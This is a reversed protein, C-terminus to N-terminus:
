RVICRCIRRSYRLPRRSLWSSRRGRRVCVLLALFPFWWSPVVGLEVVPVVRLVARALINAPCVLTSRAVVRCASQCVLARAAQLSSMSSVEPITLCHLAIVCCPSLSSSLAFPSFYFSGRLQTGRASLTVLTTRGVMCAIGNADAHRISPLRALLGPIKCRLRRRPGSSRPSPSCTFLRGPGAAVKYRLGLRRLLAPM